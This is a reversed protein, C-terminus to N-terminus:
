SGSAPGGPAPVAAPDDPLCDTIARVAALVTAFGTRVETELASIRRGQEAISRGQELQTERLAMLVHQQARQASRFEAVDRDTIAVLARTHAITERLVDM